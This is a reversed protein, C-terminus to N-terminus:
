KTLLLEFGKTFLFDLAGLFIAVGLSIGIVLLTYNKTEKKTPWTVKKMEEISDKIYKILKSM